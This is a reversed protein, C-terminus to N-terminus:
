FRYKGFVKKIADQERRKFHRKPNSTFSFNQPDKMFKGNREVEVLYRGKRLKTYIIKVVM